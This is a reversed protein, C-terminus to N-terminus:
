SLYSLLLFIFTNKYANKFPINHIYQFFHNYINSFLLDTIM